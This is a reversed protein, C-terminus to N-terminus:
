CFPPSFSSLNLFETTECAMTLYCTTGLLLTSFGHGGSVLWYISPIAELHTASPWIRHSRSSLRSLVHSVVESPAISCVHDRSVGFGQQAAVKSAVYNPLSTGAASVTVGVVADPINMLDALEELSRVMAYSGVVLWVLCMLIAVFAWGLGGIPNGQSDLYRVDPITLHMLGKLPFLLVHFVIDLLSGTQPFEILSTHDDDGSGIEPDPQCDPVTPQQEESERVELINECKEVVADFIDRSPALLFYDRKGELPNPIKLILRDPDIEISTFPPLIMRHRDAEAKDPVSSVTNRTFTFWRLYWGHRSFKAKTYFFSRQWLFCNLTEAYTNVETDYLSHVDSPKETRVQVNFLRLTDGFSGSSSRLHLTQAFFSSAPSFFGRATNTSQKSAGLDGSEQTSLLSEQAEFNASPELKFSKHVYPGDPMNFSGYKSKGSMTGGRGRSSQRRTVFDVIPQFYACVIVYLIYTGALLAADSFSVFIHDVGLQDDDAPEKDRLAYLLLAISM